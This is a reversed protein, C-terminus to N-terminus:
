NSTFNLSGTTSYGSGGEDVTVADGVRHIAGTPSICISSGSSATIHHGCDTIGHDGVRVVAIGNNNLIPSGTTWTGIFTRPHGSVPANCTGMSLDGVRCVAAGM